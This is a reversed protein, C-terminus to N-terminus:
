IERWSINEDKKMFTYQRKAYQIEEKIWEEVAERQSLKGRLYAILSRYGITNLGPSNADFGQKLLNKVEDIAGLKLRQLIRKKIAEVLKEKNKFKLGLFIQPHVILKRSEKRLFLKKGAQLIEIKRILRHPNKKDSENLQNFFSHNIKKIIEQLEEVTKKALQKRLSWNPPINETAVGYILHRLYFYSGGVIIPTKNRKKIKNVAIRACRVWDFSSFYHRPSIIDYLWIKTNFYPYFGIDFNGIREIVEFKLQDVPIDKGTIINLNKYAQRSDCSILEGHYLHAYELALKTKGTATQGTIVIM